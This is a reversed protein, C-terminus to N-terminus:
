LIFIKIGRPISFPSTPDFTNQIPKLMKFQPQPQTDYFNIQSPSIDHIYDYQYSLNDESPPPSNPLKSKLRAFKDPDIDEFHSAREM